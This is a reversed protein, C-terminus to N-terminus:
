WQSFGMRKLDDMSTGDKISDFLEYAEYMKLKKDISMSLDDTGTCYVSWFAKKRKDLSVLFYEKNDVTYNGAWWDDHYENDTRSLSKGIKVLKWKKSTRACSDIDYAEYIDEIKDRLEKSITWEYTKNFRKDDFGVTQPKKNKM